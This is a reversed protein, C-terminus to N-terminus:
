QCHWSCGILHLITVKPKVALGTLLAQVSSSFPCDLGEGCPLCELVRTTVNTAVSAVNISGATCGCDLISSSGLLLTTAGSPCLKCDRQGEEDQYQGVPCRKCALSGTEDQYSGTACPTCSVSAGSTQFTGSPCEKCIFTIGELSIM